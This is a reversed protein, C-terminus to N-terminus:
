GSAEPLFLSTYVGASDNLGTYSLFLYERVTDFRSDSANYYGTKHNSDLYLGNKLLVPYSDGTDLVSQYFRTIPLGASSLIQPVLGYIGVTEPCSSFDLGYNSWLVYPVIRKAFQLEQSSFGKDSELNNIFSPAHDGVMCIIVPRDTRSYFETLDRFAEASLAVSSVFENIQSTTDEDLGASVHVTDYEDPNQSYGGHNQFTLLYYFRPPDNASGSSYISNMVSYYGSDPHIRKGYATDPLSDTPGLLASDFGMAPYCTSRNYNAASYFHMALSTYGLNHLYRPVTCEIKSFNLYNFPAYATLLYFPAATLLEYESNNTGGGVSPAVAHGYFAGEVGFFPKLYDRDANLTLYDNLDCFSENLILIIDPRVADTDASVPVASPLLEESYGEPIVYPNMTQRINSIATCVFGYRSCYYTPTSGGISIAKPGLLSHYCPLLLLVLLACRSPIRWWGRFPYRKETLWLTHLAVFSLICVSLFMWPVEPLTFRYNGLVTLATATNALESFYLPSSHFLFVYHNALGWVSFFLNSALLAYRWKQLILLLALTVSAFIALNLFYYYFTLSFWLSPGGLISHQMMYFQLLLVSVILCGRLRRVPVSYVRDQGGTVAAEIRRTLYGFTHVLKWQVPLTCVVGCLGAATLLIKWRNGLREIVSSLRRMAIWSSRFSFFCLFSWCLIVFLQWRAIKGPRPIRVYKGPILLLVAAGCACRLFLSGILDSRPGWTMFMVASFSVALLLKHPWYQKLETQGDKKNM